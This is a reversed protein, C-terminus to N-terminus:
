DMYFGEYVSVSVIFSNPKLSHPGTQMPRGGCMTRLWGSSPCTSSTHRPVAAAQVAVACGVCNGRLDMGAKAVAMDTSVAVGIWMSRLSSKGLQFRYFWGVFRHGSREEHALRKPKGQARFSPDWAKLSWPILYLLIPSGWLSGM